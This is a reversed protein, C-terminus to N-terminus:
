DWLEDETEDAKPNLVYARVWGYTRDDCVADVEIGADTYEVRTVKADRYLIDLRGSESYPLLIKTDYLGKGLVQEITKKLTDLGEGTLASILVTNEEKQYFELNAKDAKNYVRIVPKSEANLERILDDVVKAQEMWMPNSLDIVHLLIDAYELEELTAKFAEILHHPLKNIFGVTDSILIEATDSLTLRRVTTDLTDFLRNEAHITSNTLANLLTSKGANTYGVIAAIPMETDKRRKRQLERVRRVEKLDEQLKSIRRRIHRRDTELQTEGPGRTGIGGGLRSLANGMGILRPLLYQYQALEVQLKGENSQARSAFIDLILGSRDLVTLGTLEEINKFQSPSLENDFILLTAENAEALDKIEKLKGEGMLTRPDPSSRNQLVKAVCVGGATKLLEELEDLTDYNADEAPTFVHSQVGALIAIEKKIESM